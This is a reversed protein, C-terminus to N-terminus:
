HNNPKHSKKERRHHRITLHHDDTITGDHISTDLTIHLYQNPRSYENLTNTLDDILSQRRRRNQPSNRRQNHNPM